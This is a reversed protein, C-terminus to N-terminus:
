SVPSVIGPSTTNKDQPVDPPPGKSGNASPTSLEGGSSVSTQKDGISVFPPSGSSPVLPAGGGSSVPPPGGGSSVPPPGTGNGGSTVEPDSPYNSYKPPEPSPYNPTIPPSQYPSTTTPTVCSTPPKPEEKCTCSCTQGSPSVLSWTEGAPVKSDDNMMSPSSGLPWNAVAVHPQVVQAGSLGNENDTSSGLSAELSVNASDHNDAPIADATAEKLFGTGLLITTFLSLFSFSLM